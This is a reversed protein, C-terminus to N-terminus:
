WFMHELIQDEYLTFIEIAFSFYFCRTKHIYRVMIFTNKDLVLTINIHLLAIIILWFFRVHHCFDNEVNIHNPSICTLSEDDNEDRM